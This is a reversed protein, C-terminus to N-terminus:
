FIKNHRRKELQRYYDKAIDRPEIESSMPKNKVHMYEAIQILEGLTHLLTVKGTIEDRVGGLIRFQDISYKKASGLDEWLTAIKNQRVLGSMRYRNTGKGDPRPLNIEALEYCGEDPSAHLTSVIFGGGMKMYTASQQDAGGEIM